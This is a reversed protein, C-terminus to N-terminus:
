GNVTAALGLITNGIGDRDLTVIEFLVGTDQRLLRDNPQMDGRYATSGLIEPSRNVMRDGSQGLMPQARLRAERETDHFFAVM